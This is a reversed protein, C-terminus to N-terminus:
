TAYLTSVIDISLINEVLERIVGQGGATQLTVAAIKKIAPHSDSPCASHGCLQMPLYDNLDNGVYLMRDLQYGKQQCLLTLKSRKNKIGQYAPIRLKKARATIVPNKETSLIFVPLGVKKLADFALGDARSCCVSETGDQCVTVKNDTLVGDFDLCIADIKQLM